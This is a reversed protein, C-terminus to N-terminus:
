DAAQKRARYQELTRLLDRFTDLKPWYTFNLLKFSFILQALITGCRRGFLREVQDTTQICM